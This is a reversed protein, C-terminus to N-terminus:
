PATQYFSLASDGALLLRARRLRATPEPSDRRRGHELVLRADPELRDEVARIVADLDKVDYPPDLLVLGLRAASPSADPRMVRLFDGVVVTCRDGIGFKQVVGRLAEAVRRNEEVFTVHAAGRSLAELGLAGTGAFGDLVQRGEVGRGLVNFLTERLSDSTPRLGPADPVTLRRGKLSGSIIRM